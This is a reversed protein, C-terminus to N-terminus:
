DDQLPSEEMVMDSDPMLQPSVRANEEGAEGDSVKLRYLGALLKWLQKDMIGSQPYGGVKQVWRVAAETEDDFVGSLQVQPMAPYDARLIALMSQVLLVQRNRSGKLLVQKKTLVIQLPQAQQLQVNADEFAATIANWTDYDTIGTAALGYRRQFETVARMTDKGYIGDPVVSPMSEDYEAIVRLMTQLGSVPKGVFFEPVKM